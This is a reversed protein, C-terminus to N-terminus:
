SPLSSMWDVGIVHVGASEFQKEKGKLAQTLPTRSNLMGLGTM